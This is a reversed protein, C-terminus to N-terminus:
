RRAQLAVTLLVVCDDLAQLAHPVGAALYALQGSRLERSAGEAQLSVSGHLCQVTIEGPVSHEPLRSGSPLLLRMVELHEAKFLAHSRFSADPAGFDHLDVVDGSQAHAISM